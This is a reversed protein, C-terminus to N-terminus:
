EECRDHIPIAGYFSQGTIKRVAEGFRSDSAAGYNGGFMFWGPRPVWVMDGNKKEELMAPVIIASGYAGAILMAAPYPSAGVPGRVNVLTLSDSGSSIGNRSCDGLHWRFVIVDLGM